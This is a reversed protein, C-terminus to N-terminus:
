HRHLFRSVGWLTVASVLRAWGDSIDMGASWNSTACASLPCVHFNVLGM